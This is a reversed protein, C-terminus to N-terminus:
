SLKIDFLVLVDNNKQVKAPYQEKFYRLTNKHAVHFLFSLHFSTLLLFLSVDFFSYLIVSRGILKQDNSLEELFRGLWEKISQQYASQKAWYSAADPIFHFLSSFFGKREKEQPAYFINGISLRGLNTIYPEIDSVNFDKANLVGVELELAFTTKNSRIIKVGVSHSLQIFVSNTICVITENLKAQAKHLIKNTKKENEKLEKEIKADVILVYCEVM